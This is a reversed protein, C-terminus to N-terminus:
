SIDAYRSLEQRNATITGRLIRSNNWSFWLFRRGLKCLASHTWPQSSSSQPLQKYSLWIPPLGVQLRVPFKKAAVRTAIIVLTFKRPWTKISCHILITLCVVISHLRSCSHVLEQFVHRGGWFELRGSPHRWYTGCLLNVFVRCRVFLLRWPSWAGSMQAGM